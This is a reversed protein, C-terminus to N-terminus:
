AFYKAKTQVIRDWRAAEYQRVSVISDEMTKHVVTNLSSVFFNLAALLNHGSRTLSRQTEANCLFEEQLEPSKHALDSFCDGLATQTTLVHYFHSTLARALRLTEGYLEQQERLTEIKGELDADVTRQTKGLREYLAQRSCKYTSITWSRLSQLRTHSPSAVQAVSTLVPEGFPQFAPACGQGLGGTWSPSIEREAAMVAKGARDVGEEEELSAM